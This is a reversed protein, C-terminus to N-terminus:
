PNGSLIGKGDGLDLRFDNDNLYEAHVSGKALPLSRRDVLHIAGDFAILSKLSFDFQNADTGSVRSKLDTIEPFGVIYRKGQKRVTIKQDVFLDTADSCGIEDADSDPFVAAM